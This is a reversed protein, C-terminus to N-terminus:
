HDRGETYFSLPGPLVFLRNKEEWPFRAATFPHYFIIWVLRDTEPDHSPHTEADPICSYKLFAPRLTSPATPSWSLTSGGCFIFHLSISLLHWSPWSSHPQCHLIHYYANVVHVSDKSKSNSWNIWRREETPSGSGKRIANSDSFDLDSSVLAESMKSRLALSYLHQSRLARHGNTM